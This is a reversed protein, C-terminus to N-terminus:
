EEGGKMADARWDRRLVRDLTKFYADRLWFGRAEAIAHLASVLARVENFVGRRLAEDDIGRIGQASKLALRALRGCAVVAAWEPDVERSVNESCVVGFDLRCATCLGTAFIMADACADQVGALDEAESARLLEDCVEEVIGLVFSGVPHAGFQQSQWRAHRVQAASWEASPLDPADMGAYASFAARAREYLCIV